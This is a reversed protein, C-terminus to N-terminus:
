NELEMRHHILLSVEFIYFSSSTEFALTGIVALSNAEHGKIIEDIRQVFSMKLHVSDHTFTIHKFTVCKQFKRSIRGLIIGRIHRFTVCKQSNPQVCFTDSKRM